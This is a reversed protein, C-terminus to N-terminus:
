GKERKRKERKEKAKKQITPEKQREKTYINVIQNQTTDKHTKNEKETKNQPKINRGVGLSPMARFLHPPPSIEIIFFFFFELFIKNQKQPVKTSNQNAYIRQVNISLRYIRMIHMNPRQGQHPM